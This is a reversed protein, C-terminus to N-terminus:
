WTTTPRDPLSAACWNGGGRVSWKKAKKQHYEKNRCSPEKALADHYDKRDISGNTRRVYCTVRSAKEVELVAKSIQADTLDGFTARLTEEVTAQWESMAVMGKSAAEEMGAEVLKRDSHTERPHPDEAEDESCCTEWVDLDTQAVRDSQAVEGSPASAGPSDNGSM